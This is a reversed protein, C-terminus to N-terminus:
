PELFDSLVRASLQGDHVTRVFEPGRRAHELMRDRDALLVRMECEIASPSLDIIPLSLGTEESVFDRVQHSVFSVVIRGAAMAECAAVGYIGLSFQDLVIDVSTYVAPMEGAPVHEVRVYRILGEAELKKMVPDALDSGKVAAKSPAHAVVPVGGHSFVPLGLEWISPDVVVPLWRGQPVDLALDPTSFFIPLASNALRSQLERARQELAPTLSWREGHFPSWTMRAAHRSPLRIDSGHFLLGVSLGAAVLEDIDAEATRLQADGFLPRDSEVLVHTFQSTVAERQVEHWRRSWRYAGLPVPEGCGFGFDQPGVVAMNTATAGSSYRNVAQAWAWGQGASNAPAIMLRSRSHSGLNEPMPVLSSDYRQSSPLVRLQVQTPLSLILGIILRKVGNKIRFIVRRIWHRVESM